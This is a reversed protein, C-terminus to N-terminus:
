SPLKLKSLDLKLGGPPLEVKTGPADKPQKIVSVRSRRGAAHAAAEEAAWIASVEREKAVIRDIDADSLELPDRSFLENLSDPDAETLPSTM